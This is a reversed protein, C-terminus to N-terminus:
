LYRRRDFAAIAFHLRYLPALSAVVSLHCWHHDGMVVHISAEPLADCSCLRPGSVKEGPASGVSTRGCLHGGSSYVIWRAVRFPRATPSFHGLVHFVLLRPYAPKAPIVNECSRERSRLSIVRFPTEGIETTQPTSGPTYRICALSQSAAFGSALRLSQASCRALKGLRGLRSLRDGRAFFPRRIM